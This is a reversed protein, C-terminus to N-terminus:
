QSLPHGLLLGFKIYVVLNTKGCLKFNMFEPLSIGKHVVLITWAVCFELGHVPHPDFNFWWVAPKLGQRWKGPCAM